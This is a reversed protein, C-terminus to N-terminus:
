FVFLVMLVVLGVGTLPVENRGRSGTAGTASGAGPWSQGAGAPVRGYTGGWRRVKNRGQHDARHGGRGAGAGAKM